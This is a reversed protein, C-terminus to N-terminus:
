QTPTEKKRKIWILIQDIVLAVFGIIMMAVSIEIWISESYGKFSHFVFVVIGVLILLSSIWEFLKLKNSVTAKVDQVVAQEALFEGFGNEDPVFKNGCIM